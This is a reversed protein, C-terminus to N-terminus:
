PQSGTQQSLYQVVMELEAVAMNPFEPM